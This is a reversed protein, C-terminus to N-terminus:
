GQVFSDNQNEADRKMVRQIETDRKEISDRLIKVVFNPDGAFSKLHKTSNAGIRPLRGTVTLDRDIHLLLCLSVMDGFYSPKCSSYKGLLRKMYAPTVPSNLNVYGRLMLYDLGDDKAICSFQAKIEFLRKLYKLTGERIEEAWARDRLLDKKTDKFNYRFYLIFTYHKTTEM